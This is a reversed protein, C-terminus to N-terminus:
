WSGKLRQSREGETAPVCVVTVGACCTHSGSNTQLMAIWLVWQQVGLLQYLVAAAAAAQQKPM